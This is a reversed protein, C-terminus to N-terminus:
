RQRGTRDDNSKHRGFVIFDGLQRSADLAVTPPTKPTTTM